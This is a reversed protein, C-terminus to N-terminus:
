RNNPKERWVIRERGLDYSSVEVTVRDGAMCRIDKKAMKGGRRALANRGPTELEIRNFDGRYVSTVTGLTRFPEISRMSIKPWSPM